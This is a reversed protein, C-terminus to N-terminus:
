LLDQLKKIFAESDRIGEEYESIDLEAKAIKERKEQIM